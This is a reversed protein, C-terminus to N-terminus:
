APENQTIIVDDVYVIDNQGARGVLDIIVDMRAVTLPAVTFGANGSLDYETNDWIFRLYQGLRGDVVLKATHFIRNTDILTIDTAFTIYAGVSDRYQLDDDTDRYRVQFQVRSAGHNIELTLLLSDITTPPGFSIELGFASLSPFPLFRRIQALRNTDSGAVLRASFLGNRARSTSLDVAAGSGSTTPQWKDLGDEFGDLWIVDGRRDHSVISGLRAALEGLDTVPFVTAQASLRGYDPTEGAM